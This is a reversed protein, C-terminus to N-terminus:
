IMKSLEWGMFYFDHLHLILILYQLNTHLILSITSLLSLCPHGNDRVDAKTSAWDWTSPPNAGLYNSDRRTMYRERNFKKNYDM